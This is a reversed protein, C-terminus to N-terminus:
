AQPGAAADIRQRADAHVRRELVFSMVPVVGAAAMTVLRGLRWRLTSWLDFVTVLYVVYVWGHVMAVIRAAENRWDGEVNFGPLQLVYKLVMEVCLVLLMVGTIWAMVRYRSM